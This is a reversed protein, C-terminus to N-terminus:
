GRLLALLEALMAAEDETQDTADIAAWLGQARVRCGAAATAQGQQDLIAAREELLAATAAARDIRLAGDTKLLDLLMALPMRALIGSDVGLVRRSADDVDDLAQDLHAEQRQRRSGVLLLIVQRIMRLIYDERIM